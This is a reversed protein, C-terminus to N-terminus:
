TSGPCNKMMKQGSHNVRGCEGDWFCQLWGVFDWGATRYRDAWFRWSLLVITEPRHACQAEEAQWAPTTDQTRGPITKSCVAKIITIRPVNLATAAERQTLGQEILALALFPPPEWNSLKKKIYTVVSNNGTTITRNSVNKMLAFHGHPGM